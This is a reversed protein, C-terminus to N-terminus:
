VSLYAFMSYVTLSLSPSIQSSESDTDLSKQQIRVHIWM